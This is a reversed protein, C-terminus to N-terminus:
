PNLAPLLAGADTHRTRHFARNAEALSAALAKLDPDTGADSYLAARLERLHQQLDEDGYIAVFSTVDQEGDLRDVWELLRQYALHQDGSSLARQLQGFAYGESALLQQRREARRTKSFARIRRLLWGAALALTLFLAIRLPHLERKAEVAAPAAVPPGAVNM